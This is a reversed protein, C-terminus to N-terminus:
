HNNHVVVKDQDATIKTSVVHQNLKNHFSLFVMSMLNLTSTVDWAKAQVVHKQLHEFM